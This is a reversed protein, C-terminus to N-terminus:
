THLLLLLRILIKHAEEVTHTAGMDQVVEWIEEVMLLAVACQVAVAEVEVQVVGAVEEDPDMAEMDVVVRIQVMALTIQFSHVNKVGTAKADVDIVNIEVWELNKDSM